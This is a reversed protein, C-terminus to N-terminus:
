GYIELVNRAGGGFGVDLPENDLAHMIAWALDAHGTEVTRGATYTMQRGSATLEKRIAMFSGAVDRWGADFELRARSIVDKAKLVLRTKVEPTYLHGRAAPFFNLVLQHVALGIGGIDIDIKTVRYKLTLQRIVEAQATFDMGRFSEKYLVRFKGAPVAPPALVALAASDGTAAPDYGIWVEGAYPRDSLPLFDDWVEWSDVMCRQLESLPFVSLTDDVFQCLLLNSYEDASYELKLEELDFLDCGGAVADEITVIHRWARDAGIAGGQLTKHGVDFDVREAKPRRKNFEDGTWFPYAEHNISSPTSFYTKRWKKHMAMGSAVKKLTNFGFVWFFEDFYFNGHFGQATRANTGLFYLTAPEEGEGRDIVIPDGKLEVGTIQRAWDVIYGRFIHAQAKSASLFIQNRGTRIADVLAERAFYWTAGIQRSKLIVRTRQDAADLWRRQYGFLGEEFAAILKAAQEDDFHNKRAKKKPASNRNEVNPNLDGEHGGPEQYRRVRALREIQRGLLDIEKFDGGTKIPKCILQILRAELTGEVRDIPKTADWGDRAKWSAVTPYKQGTAEAILTLDWGQWYLFKAQRRVDFVPPEGCLALATSAPDPREEPRLKM